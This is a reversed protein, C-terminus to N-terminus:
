NGSKVHFVLTLLAVHASDCTQTLSRDALIQHVTTIFGPNDNQKSKAFPAAMDSRELLQGIEVPRQPLIIRRSRSENRICHMTTYQTTAIM